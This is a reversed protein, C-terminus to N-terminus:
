DILVDCFLKLECKCEGHKIVAIVNCLFTQCDIWLVEVDDEDEYALNPMGGKHQTRGALVRRKNRKRKGVGLGLLAILLLLLLCVAAIAAGV